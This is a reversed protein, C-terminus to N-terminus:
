KKDDKLSGKFAYRYDNTGIKNTLKQLKSMLYDIVGLIRSAVKKFIGAKGLDRETRSKELWKYYLGRLSAVKHALWTRPANDAEKKLRDLTNYAAKAVTPNIRTSNAKINKKQLEAIIGLRDIDRKAQDSTKYRSAATKMIDDKHLDYNDFAQNVGNMYQDTTMAELYAEDGTEAYSNVMAECIKYALSNESQPNIVVNALENVLEPEEIIRAEDVAVALYEPDIDNQEAVAVMAELYDCGYSETISEIDSFRVVAAGLSSNEVVPVTIPTIINDSLYNAESLVDLGNIGKVDSESYLM